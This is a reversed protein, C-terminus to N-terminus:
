DSPGVVRELFAGIDEGFTYPVRVVNRAGLMAYAGEVQTQIRLAHIPDDNRGDAPAIESRWPLVILHDYVAMHETLLDLLEYTKSPYELSAQNLMWYAFFDAVTKDSVFSPHDKEERIKINFIRMRIKRREVPDNIGRWSSRSM